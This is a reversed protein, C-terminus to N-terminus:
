VKLFHGIKIFKNIVLNGPIEYEVIESGDRGWGM